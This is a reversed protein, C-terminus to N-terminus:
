KPYTYRAIMRPIKSYLGNVDAYIDYQKGVEWTIKTENQLLVLQEQGDTGCDLIALQPKESLIEKIVGVCKYIRAEKTRLTINNLLEQYDKRTFTWAKTTYEDAFPVFYVQHELVSDEKGPYSARIRITNYGVPGMVAKFSFEGTGDEALNEVNLDKHTSEITVTAGPLTTANITTERYSTSLMTAAALELPIEMPARYFTLTATTERCYPARATVIVYNEGIAKISPNYSASGDDGVTDTIDNNNVSVRSGPTVQIRLNYISTSVQVWEAEPQIIKLMSAPIDITYRIPTMKTEVGSRRATPTLTIDMTEAYLETINDYFVHDAIDITAYGGVVVFTSNLESIYIQTGEEAPIKIRRAALKEIQIPEIIVGLALPDTKADPTGSNKILFFIGISLALLVMLAIIGVAARLPGRLRARRPKAPPLPPLAGYAPPMDDYADDYGSLGGNDLAVFDDDEGTEDVDAHLARARRGSVGAGSPAMGQEAANQRVEKLYVAGRARREKLRVMEVALTEDEEAAAPEPPLIDEEVPMTDDYVVSTKGKPPQEYKEQWSPATKDKASLPEGCQFCRPFSPKNWHGCRPCKM